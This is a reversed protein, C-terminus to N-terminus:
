PLLGAFLSLVEVMCGLFDVVDIVFGLVELVSAIRKM